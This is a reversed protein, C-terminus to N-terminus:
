ANEKVQKEFFDVFGNYVVESDGYLKTFNLGNESYRKLEEPHNHFYLINDVLQRSNGPENFLGVKNELILTKMESELSNLIPLGNGLLDFLKYTVSQSSGKIHQTLGLDSEYYKAILVEKNVRGLFEVNSLQKTYKNILESQPGAGAIIFRFQRPYSTDLEKAAELICPIDYSKALSGAYIITLPKGKRVENRDTSPQTAQILKLDAAPYFCKNQVDNKSYSKAWEIYQNSIATLGNVNRFIKAVLWRHFLFMPNVFSKAWKPLFKVFNDPWPDIVDVIIKVKNQNAWRVLDYSLFIPPFALLIIDPKPEVKVIKILDKAYRYHAIFRLPGFNSKYSQSKVYITRYNENIDVQTTEQFRHTKTNHRFTSAFFTVQHGRIIAKEAISLYRTSFNNDFPTQEFISVLWIKM